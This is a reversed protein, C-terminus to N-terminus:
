FCCCCRLISYVCFSEYNYVRVLAHGGLRGSLTSKSKAVVSCNRSSNFNASPVALLLVKEGALEGTLYRNCRGDACTLQLYVVLLLLLLPPPKTKSFLVMPAVEACWQPIKIKKNVVFLRPAAVSTREYPFEHTRPAHTFARCRSSGCEPCWRPNACCYVVHCNHKDM